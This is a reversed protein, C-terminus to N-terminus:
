ATTHRQNSSDLNLQRLLVGVQPLSVSSGVCSSPFYRALMADRPYYYYYNIL